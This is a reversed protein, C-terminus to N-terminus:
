ESFKRECEPIWYQKQLESLSDSHVQTTCPFTVRRCKRCYGPGHFFIQCQCIQPPVMVRLPLVWGGEGDDGQHPGRRPDHIDFLEESSSDSYDAVGKYEPEETDSGTLDQNDVEDWWVRKEEPGEEVEMRLDVSELVEEEMVEVTQLSFVPNVAVVQRPKRPKRKRKYEDLIWRQSVIM